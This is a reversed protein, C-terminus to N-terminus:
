LLADASIMAGEGWLLLSVQRFAVEREEDSMSALRVLVAKVSEVKDPAVRALHPQINHLMQQLTMPPRTGPIPRAANQVSPHPHPSNFNQPTQGQNSMQTLNPASSQPTNQQMHPSQGQAGGQAVQAAAAARALAAAQNIMAPNPPRGQQVNLAAHGQNAMQAQAAALRQLQIQQMQQATLQNNSGAPLIGQPFQQSLQAALTHQQQQGFGQQQQQQQQQLAAMQQQATLPLNMNNMIPTQTSHPQPQTGPPM